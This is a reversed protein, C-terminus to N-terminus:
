DAAYLIGYICAVYLEKNVNSVEFKPWRTPMETGFNVSWWSIDAPIDAAEFAKNLDNYISSIRYHFYRPKM